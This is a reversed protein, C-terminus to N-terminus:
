YFVKFVKFVTGEIDRLTMPGPLAYIADAQSSPSPKALDGWGGM